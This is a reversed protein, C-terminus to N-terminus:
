IKSLNCFLLLIYPVNNMSFMKKYQKILANRPETLVQWTISKGGSFCKPLNYRWQSECQIFFYLGRGPCASRWKSSLSQCSCAIKRYVWTDAWINHSWQKGGTYFMGIKAKCICYESVVKWWRTVYISMGYGLTHFIYM